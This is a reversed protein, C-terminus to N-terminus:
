AEDDADATTLTLKGALWEPIEPTLEIGGALLPSADNVLTQLRLYALARGDRGSLLTGVERGAQLIPMGPPPPAGHAKVPVIRKRVANRHKMRSVLEQGVYCGKKFDVGNLEEFNAELLFMKEVAIDRAGDPLGFQLRLKDYEDPSVAGIRASADAPIIARAGIGALRPDTYAVGGQWPAAAGPQPPLQALRLGEGGLLAVVRLDGSRDSIALKARLKYLSLRRALDALREAECDILFGDESQVIFFDFLYKGQPTLLAAYIARSPSLQNMDNSILRQLFERAEPGSVGIVGRGPLACIVSIIM